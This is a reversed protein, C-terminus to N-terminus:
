KYFIEYSSYKKFKNDWVVLYQGNNTMTGYIETTLFKLSAVINFTDDNLQRILYIHQKHRLLLVNREKNNIIPFLTSDDCENNEILTITKNANQKFVGNFLEFVLINNMKKNVWLLQKDNIFHIKQGDQLMQKYKFELKGLVGKEWIIFEGYGSSALVTESQNFSLSNVRNIHQDLSYLFTLVNKSFGVKWVIIKHDMGGSILQDEQKNLLFCNISNNHQKFPQSWNWDNRNTQQWCIIQSNNDGSIFNNTKKSHILCKIPNSHEKYSNSLKFTGQEFKWIKIECGDSSIMISGDKNFVIACCWADIQSQYDILNFEAQKYMMLQEGLLRQQNCVEIVGQQPQILKQDRINESLGNINRFNQLIQECKQSEQFSNFLALKKEIKKNWANMNDIQSRQCFEEFKNKNILNDLENYFSYTVNQQGIQIIHKIWEDVNGILQDLLQIVNSRLLYLDKQLEEILKIRIMIFTEINEKKQKQYEQINQMAKKFSLLQVKSDFNELCESCLLRENRKLKGDCVIMLVPLKHKLSCHLDEEKEIMRSQIM